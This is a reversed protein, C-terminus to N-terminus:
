VVSKRDLGIAAERAMVKCAIEAEALAPRDTNLISHLTRDTALLGGAVARDCYYDKEVGGHQQGFKERLRPLLWHGALAVQGDKDKTLRWAQVVHKFAPHVSASTAADYLDPFREAYEQAPRVGFSKTLPVPEPAM